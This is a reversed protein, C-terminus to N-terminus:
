LHVILCYNFMSLTRWTRQHLYKLRVTGMKRSQTSALLRGAMPQRLSAKCLIAALTLIKASIAGYELCSLSLDYSKRALLGYPARCNFGRAACWRVSCGGACRVVSGRGGLQVEASAGEVLWRGFHKAGNDQSAIGQRLAGPQRGAGHGGLGQGVRGQGVDLLSPLTHRELLLGIQPHGQTVAHLAVPLLQGQLLLLGTPSAAATSLKKHRFERRLWSLAKTSSNAKDPVTLVQSAM